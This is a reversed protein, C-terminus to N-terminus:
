WYGRSNCFRFMEVWYQRRRGVSHAWKILWAVLLVNDIYRYFCKWVIKCIPCTLETLGLCICSIDNFDYMDIRLISIMIMNIIKKTRMDFNRKIQGNQDKALLRELGQARFSISNRWGIYDCHLRYIFDNVTTQLKYKLDLNIIYWCQFPALFM